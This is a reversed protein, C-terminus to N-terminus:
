ALLIKRKRTTRETQFSANITSAANLSLSGGTLAFNEQSLLSNVTDTGFQHTITRVTAGGVNITVSDAASPLAPNSSWNTVVDWFGDANPVWKVAAAAAVGQYLAGILALALSHSALRFTAPTTAM